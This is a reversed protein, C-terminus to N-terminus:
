RKLLFKRAIGQIRRTDMGPEALEYGCAHYRMHPPERLALGAGEGYRRLLRYLHQRSFRKGKTGAFLWGEPSWLGHMRWQRLFRRMESGPPDVNNFGNKLWRIFINGGAPDPARVALGAGAERLFGPPIMCAAIGYGTEPAM